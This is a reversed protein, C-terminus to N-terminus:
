PKKSFVYDTSYAVSLLEGAKKCVTSPKGGVTNIRQITTAGTLRGNGRQSVVALKVWPVDAEGPAPVVALIKGTLGSGDTLDWSPGAGHWGVTKGDLILTAIPERGAWALKGDAEKCEYIQAGEAHLTLFTTEGPAEIAEPLKTQAGANIALGFSAAALAAAFIVPQM